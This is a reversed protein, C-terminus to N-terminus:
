SLNQTSGFSKRPYKRLDCNKWSSTIRCRLCEKNTVPHSPEKIPECQVNKAESKWSVATALSASSFYALSLLFFPAMSSGIHM